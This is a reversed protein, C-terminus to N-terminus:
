VTNSESFGSIKQIVHIYLWDRESYYVNLTPSKFMLYLFNTTYYAPHCAAHIIINTIIDSRVSDTYETYSNYTAREQEFRNILTRHSLNYESNPLYLRLHSTLKCFTNPKYNATHYTTGNNLCASIAQLETYNSNEPMNIYTSNKEAYYVLDKWAACLNHIVVLYPLPPLDVGNSTYYTGM